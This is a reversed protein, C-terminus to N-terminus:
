CGLYPGSGGSRLSRDLDLSSADPAVPGLTHVPHLQRQADLRWVAAIAPPLREGRLAAGVREGLAQHGSRSIGPQHWTSVVHLGDVEEGGLQALLQPEISWGSVLLRSTLGQRHAERLLSVAEAGSALTFVVDATQATAWPAELAPGHLVQALAPTGGAREFGLHWAAPADTVAEATGTVTAAHAGFAARAWPAAQACASWLGLHVGDVSSAEFREGLSVTLVRALPASQQLLHTRAPGLLSLVTEGSHLHQAARHLDRVSAIPVLRVLPLAAFVQEAVARAAEGSPIFARTTIAYGVLPVSAAAATGASALLLQRRSLQPMRM